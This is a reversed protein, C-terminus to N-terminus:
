LFVEAYQEAKFGIFYENNNILIPRKIIAPYELM